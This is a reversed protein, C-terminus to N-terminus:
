LFIIMQSLNYEQLRGLRLDEQKLQINCDFKMHSTITKSISNADLKFYKDKFIKSRNKYPMIDQISKHTSDAGQPLKSFIIIDRENNYRATHNYIFNIKRNSNIIKLYANPKYDNIKEINFGSEFYENNRDNKIKKPKLSRLGFLADKLFFKKTKKKFKELNEFFIKLTNENLNKKVAFFFVRKRNQPIGFDSAQLVRFDAHYGIEDLKNIIDKAKSKIGIVNEILIYKPKSLKAFKIFYKYLENRPDNIINQRNATSFGQCPPGGMLLDIKDNSKFFFNNTVVKKIDENIIRSELLPYNKKLTLISAKDIDIALKLNHKRNKFSYSLGGAGSFIDIFNIKKM